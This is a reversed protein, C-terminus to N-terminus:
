CVSSGGTENDRSQRQTPPNDIASQRLWLQQPEASSNPAGLVRGAFAAAFAGAEKQLKFEARFTIGAGGISHRFNDPAIHNHDFWSRMDTMSRMVDRGIIRVEVVFM